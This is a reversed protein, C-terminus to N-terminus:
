DRVPTNVTLAFPQRSILRPPPDQSDTIVPFPNRAFSRERRPPTIESSAQASWDWWNLYPGHPVNCTGFKLKGKRATWKDRIDEFILSITPIKQAFNFSESTFMRLDLHFLNKRTTFKKRFSILNSILIKLDLLLFIRIPYFSFQTIENKGSKININYWSLKYICLFRKVLIKLIIRIFLHKSSVHMPFIAFICCQRRAADISFM